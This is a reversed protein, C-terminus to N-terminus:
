SAPPPRAKPGPDDERAQVSGQVGTFRGLAGSDFGSHTATKADKTLQGDRRPRAPRRRSRAAGQNQERGAGPGAGVARALVVAPWM